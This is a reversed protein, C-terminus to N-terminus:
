YFVRLYASIGIIVAGSIVVGALTRSRRPTRPRVVLLLAAFVHAVLLLKVGLVVNHVLSHGPRVLINFIGSILLAPIATLVFPRFARADRQDLIEREDAPLASSSPVLILRWYVAGGILVVASSLHLWRMFVQLAYHM